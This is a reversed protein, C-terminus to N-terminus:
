VDRLVRERCSARGIEITNYNKLELLISDKYVELLSKPTYQSSLCFKEIIKIVINAKCFVQEWIADETQFIAQKPILHQSEIYIRLRNKERNMTVKKVSVDSWIGSLVTNLQLTSFVELFRKEM